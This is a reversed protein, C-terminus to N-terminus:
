LKEGVQQKDEQMSHVCDSTVLAVPDYVGTGYGFRNEPGVSM